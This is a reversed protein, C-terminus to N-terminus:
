HQTHFQRPLSGPPTVAPGDPPSQFLIMFNCKDSGGAISCDGATPKYEGFSFVVQSFTVRKKLTLWCFFPEGLFPCHEAPNLNIQEQSVKM